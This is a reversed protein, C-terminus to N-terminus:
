YGVSNLFTIYLAVLNRVTRVHFVLMGLLSLIKCQKSVPSMFTYSSSIDCFDLLNFLYRKGKGLHDPLVSCGTFFDLCVLMFLGSYGLTIRVIKNM